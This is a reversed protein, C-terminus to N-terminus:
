EDDHTLVCHDDDHGHESDRGPVFAKLLVVREVYAM